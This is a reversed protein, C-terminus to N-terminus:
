VTFDEIISINSDTVRILAKFSNLIVSYTKANNLETCFEMFLSDGDLEEPSFTRILFIKYEIYGVLSIKEGYSVLSFGTNDDIEFSETIEPILDEDTIKHAYKLAKRLAETLKEYRTQTEEAENVSVPIDKLPSITELFSEKDIFIIKEFTNETKKNKYREFITSKYTLVEPNKIQEYFPKKHSEEEATNQPKQEETHIKPIQKDTKEESKQKETHAGSIQGDTKEKSKQEKTETKDNIIEIKNDQIEETVTNIPSKDNETQENYDQEDYYDNKEQKKFMFLAFGVALFAAIFYWIWVPFPRKDKKQVEIEPSDSLKSSEALAQIRLFSNSKTKFNIQTSFDSPNKLNKKESFVINLDDHENEFYIDEKTIVSRVQPLILVYSSNGLEKLTYKHKTNNNFRLKIAYDGTFTKRVAMGLLYNEPKVNKETLDSAAQCAIDSSVFFIFIFILLRNFCIKLFEM